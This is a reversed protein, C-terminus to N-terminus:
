GAPSQYARLTVPVDQQEGDRAIKLTVTDGPKHKGVIREVDEKTKVTQGDISLIVDGPVADGNDNERTGRLGAAAAATGEKVQGIVLGTRINLEKRAVQSPVFTVGLVAREVQARGKAILQPVVQNVMDVPIAFGIGAYTGSPSYIATNVGILRGASDLLPGGSNGPNIAADTQIVGSIPQETVSKIERDLASVVGTTLTYDLGFPDGIAFTKQGVQLDHSSGIPIPRLKDAAVDIKLVALDHDPAAGTLRADYVNGDHLTVKAANAGQIVHFNTVVHGETDWVFGSGTGRPIEKLDRTFVDRRLNLTTIYAVSPSANKFLDITAKEDQALDGRATVVRPTANPDNPSGHHAWGGIFYALGAVVLLLLILPGAISWPSSRRVPRVYHPEDSYSM